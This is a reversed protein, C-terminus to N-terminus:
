AQPPSFHNLASIILKTELVPSTVPLSKLEHSTPAQLFLSSSYSPLDPLWMVTPM